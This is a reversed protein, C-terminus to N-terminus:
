CSRIPGLDEPLMRRKLALAHRRPMLLAIREEFLLEFHLASDVDPPSSICFDLEGEAVLATLRETGGVEITLQLTPREAYFAAIIAPLRHSATPEIVGFRIRGASGAAFRSAM